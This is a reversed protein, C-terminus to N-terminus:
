AERRVGAERLFEVVAANFVQPRELPVLHGAEPVILLRADPMLREARELCDPPTIMDEAGVVLLTPQRVRSMAATMDPRSGLAALAAQVTPVSQRAIMERLFFELRSREPEARAAASTGLLRPVM